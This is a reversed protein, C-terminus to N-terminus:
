SQRHRATRLMAAAISQKAAAAGYKAKGGRRANGKGPTAPSCAAMGM